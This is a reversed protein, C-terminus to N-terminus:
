LVSKKFLYPLGVALTALSSVGPVGRIKSVGPGIIAAGLAYMMYEESLQDISRLWVASFVVALETLQAIVNSIAAGKATVVKAQPPITLTPPPNSPDTPTLEERDSDDGM